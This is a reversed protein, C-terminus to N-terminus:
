SQFNMHYLAEYVGKRDLLEEHTGEEAIGEESLVMIRGANRITTLRHAIVFTTRNKALSELSHQVVQESENDLASTAEDFILIPPNKLFVRAISLRQKQGGSLKVGRQGIDTDYGEPFGMIFEHANANKAAMVVEEDTAEPKGYRINDMITGAFLYVDQQVIGINNRLDDLKIKRIDKGDIRITGESVEYFRPILSCLTTKGVGSPGVLAVYEGASVHMNIDNLVKEENDEYHFSVHDFEIEGKLHDVSVADDADKIDPAIALIEQFREFGTYGNQFMEASNVLQKVPETFNNIYLLFTILDTVVVEGTTMFSVGALLVAVTVLTTMANLGSHYLGMYRYSVKKANVFRENGKNFKRLEEKENAFSKVVRIGSLSDEIQSNIDAIRERNRKFASKMKKNFYVAYVLMVPVFAFTVLTLKVDINILIVFSGIIKIASILVDEPGHHLLETIDFLDSTIRSLLHGVKQNDYFAFTLKQYHGFIDKRMDAEIKAGMMHGFYTIYLNCGLTVAVMVVMLVGLSIITRFAKDADYYIVENTIYRVVLPIALTVGANIVAFFLDSFFLFKYPKYYAILKKLQEKM